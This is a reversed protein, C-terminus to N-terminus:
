IEHSIQEINIHSNESNSTVVLEVLIKENSNELSLRCEIAAHLNSNNRDFYKVDIIPESKLEIKTNKGVLNLIEQVESEIVKAPDKGFSLAYGYSEALESYKNRKILNLANTSYHVLNSINTHTIEM